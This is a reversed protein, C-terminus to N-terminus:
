EPREPGGSAPEVLKRMRWLRLVFSAFGVVVGVTLYRPATEFKQDAWYGAGMALLLALVAEVAGQYVGALRKAEPTSPGQGGIM